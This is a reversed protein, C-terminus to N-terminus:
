EVQGYAAIRGKAIKRYQASIDIGHYDRGLQTAAIGCPAVGCFPSAVKGGSETLANILWRMVGVPKQCPHQKLSHGNYNAQPVASVHCDLDHFDDGWNSGSPKIQRHCNNRRYLLIPEWSPRFSFRYKKKVTNRGHWVLVQQFTYGVFSEDFWQRGDFLHEQSWFTAIFDAGCKSWRQCWDRTFEELNEPEWPEDTIGYPPDALLLDCKVVKQDVTITWTSQTTSKARREIAQQDEIKQATQRWRIETAARLIAKSDLKLITEQEEDDADALISAASISVKGQDMAQIL